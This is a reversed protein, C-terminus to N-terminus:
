VYTYRVPNQSKARGPDPSPPRKGLYLDRVNGPAEHGSFGWRTPYDKDIKPFNATTGPMWQLDNYVGRVVGNLVAM